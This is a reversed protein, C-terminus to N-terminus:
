RRPPHLAGVNICLLAGIELLWNMRIGGPSWGLFHDVKHFSAARILIFSLLMAIGTLVLRYRLLNGQLLWLGGLLGTLGSLAIAAIFAIQVEHRRSYWGQRLALNRGVSTLLSQLDFQKNFGLFLLALTLLGWFAMNRYRGPFAPPLHYLAWAQRLALFSAVFYFAVTIWGVVTPDGIEFRWHGDHMTACASNLLFTQLAQVM